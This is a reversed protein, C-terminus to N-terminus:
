TGKYSTFIDKTFLIRSKNLITIDETNWTIYFVLYLHGFDKYLLLYCKYISKLKFRKIYANLKVQNVFM